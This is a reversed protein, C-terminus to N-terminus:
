FVGGLWSKFDYGEVTDIPYRPLTSKLYEIQESSMQAVRFDQETVFDKGGAITFFAERLQEPSTTDQTISVMYTVFRDFSITDGGQSVEKFIEDFKKDGGEFDLEVVGLSSLCSKFEM